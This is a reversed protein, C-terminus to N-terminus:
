NKPKDAKGPAFSAFCSEAFQRLLEAVEEPSEPCDDRLWQMLVAAAGASVFSYILLIQHEERAPMTQRWRSVFAERSLRTIREAFRPDGNEGQIALCLTRNEYVVRIMPLMGLAHENEPPFAGRMQALLDNEMEGLLDYVDKYHLYFTSRNIDACSCLDTVTISKIPKQRILELLAGRLANRTFQVRRNTGSMVFAEWFLIDANYEM